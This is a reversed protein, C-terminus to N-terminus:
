HGPVLDEIGGIAPSVDNLGRLIINPLLTDHATDDDAWVLIAINRRPALWLRAIM